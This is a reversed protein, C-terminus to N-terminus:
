GGRNGSRNVACHVKTGVATALELSQKAIILTIKAPRLSLSYDSRFFCAFLHQYACRIVGDRAIRTRADQAGNSWAISLFPSM